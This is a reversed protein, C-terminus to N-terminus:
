ANALASLSVDGFDTLIELRLLIKAFQKVTMPVSKSKCLNALSAHHEERHGCECPPFYNMESFATCTCSLCFSWRSCHKREATMIMEVIMEGIDTNTVKVMHIRSLCLSVLSIEADLGFLNTDPGVTIFDKQDRGGNVCSDLLAERTRFIIDREIERRRPACLDKGNVPHLSRTCLLKNETALKPLVQSKQMDNQCKACSDCKCTPCYNCAYICM